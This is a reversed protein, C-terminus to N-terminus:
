IMLRGNIGRIDEKTINVNSSLHDIDTIVTNMMKNLKELQRKNNECFKKFETATIVQKEKLREVLEIIREASGPKLEYPGNKCILKEETLKLFLWGDVDQGLLKNIADEKFYSSKIHKELYKKVHEPSWEMVNIPAKDTMMPNGM